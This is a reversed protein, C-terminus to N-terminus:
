IERRVAFNHFHTKTQKFKNQCNSTPFCTHVIRYLKQKIVLLKVCFYIM